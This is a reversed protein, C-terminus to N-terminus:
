GKRVAKLGNNKLNLDAYQKLSEMKSYGKYIHINKKEKLYASILKRLDKSNINKLTKEM